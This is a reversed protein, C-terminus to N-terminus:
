ANRRRGALGFVTLGLLAVSTPEPVSVAGTLIAPVGGTGDYIRFTDYDASATLLNERVNWNQAFLNAAVSGDLNFKQSVLLQSTSATNIDGADTACYMNCTILGAADTDFTFALHYAQGLTLQFNVGGAVNADTTLNMSNVAAAGTSGSAGPDLTAVSYSRNTFPNVGTNAVLSLQVNAYDASSTGSLILRLGGLSRNDSDIPRFWQSKGATGFNNPKVTLDVAGRIATFGNVQGAYLSNFGTTTTFQAINVQGTNTTHATHLYGGSAIPSATSFAAGSANSPITGTGGVKVIDTPGGMGGDPGDFDAEFVLGANATAACALMAIMALYKPGTM